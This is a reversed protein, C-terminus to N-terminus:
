PTRRMSFMGPTFKFKIEVRRPLRDPDILM